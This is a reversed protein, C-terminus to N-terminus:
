AMETIIDLSYFPSHVPRHRGMSQAYYLISNCFLKCLILENVIQQVQM